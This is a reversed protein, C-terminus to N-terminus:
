QQGEKGYTPKRYIGFNFTVCEYESEEQFSIGFDGVAPM